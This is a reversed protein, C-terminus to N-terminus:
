SETTAQALASRVAELLTEGTVSYETSIAIDTGQTKIIDHSVQEMAPKLLPYFTAQTETLDRLEVAVIEQETVTVDVNVPGNQVLIAVSYTGPIYLSASKASTKDKPVFFYILLFILLLGVGAFLLTKLIERLQVVIIKTGGM